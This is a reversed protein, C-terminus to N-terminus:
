EVNKNIVWYNNLILIDVCGRELANIADRPSCVIPEEHMNFSTNILLPLGSIQHFQNIISHFRPNDQHRVIQPRVTGDVHVAAPAKQRFEKSAKYTITMFRAAVHSPKWGELFSSAYEELISPAFPMFETRKLRKNLIQNINDAFPSALISRNGLARPGYEMRGWFHGLIKGANIEMAIKEEINDIIQFSCNSQKLATKIEKDTFEPGLYVNELFRPSYSSSENGLNNYAFLAAGTALGADNMNPHIYLEQVSTNELIRQNLKVNAFIGGALVLKREGTLKLGDNIFLLIIEELRKQAAAAIDEKLNGDWVTKFYSLNCKQNKTLSCENIAKPIKLSHFDGMDKRYVIIKKMSENLCSPNGFAALGTVKGEHRGPKFGLYDTVIMYFIGPSHFGNTQKITIIKGNMGLSISGGICYDGMGDLTIITAKKWPCTYYASSAHALHHEIFKIPKNRLEKPPLRRFDKTRKLSEIIYNHLSIGTRKFSKYCYKLINLMQWIPREDSFAVLDIRDPNIDTM